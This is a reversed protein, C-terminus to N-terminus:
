RRFLPNQPAIHGTGAIVESRCEGRLTLRIRRLLASFARVIFPLVRWYFLLSSLASIVLVLPLAQFALVFSAAPDKQADFPAPGGGLYGFVFSTGERTAREIVNVVDNLAIFITTFFPIRLFAFGLALTLVMGSIVTRWAIVRRDESALWALAHLAFFGFLSQLTLDM